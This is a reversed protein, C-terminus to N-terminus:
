ESRPRLDLHLGLQQFLLGLHFFVDLLFHQQELFVHLIHLDFQVLIGVILDVENLAFDLSLLFQLLFQSLLVSHKVLLNTLVCLHYEIQKQLFALPLLYVISLHLARQPVKLGRDSLQHPLDLLLLGLLILLHDLEKRLDFHHNFSYILPRFM